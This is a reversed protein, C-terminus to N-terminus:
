NSTEILEAAAQLVNVIKMQYKATVEWLYIETECIPISFIKLCVVERSVM